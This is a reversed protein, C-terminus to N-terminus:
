ARSFTRLSDATPAMTAHGRHPLMTKTVGGLSQVGVALVGSGGDGGVAALGSPRVGTTGGAAGGRTSPRLFSGTVASRPDAGMDEDAGGCELFAAGGGSGKPADISAAATRLVGSATSRSGAAVGGGGGLDQNLQTSPDFTRSHPPIGAAPM